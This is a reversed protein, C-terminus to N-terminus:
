KRPVYGAESPTKWILTANRGCVGDRRYSFFREPDGATCRDGGFHRTVGSTELAARVAEALAFQYRRRPNMRFASAAAPVRDLVRERVESGVEYHSGCIAPGLWALLRERGVDVFATLAGDIVGAALGRWGVHAAAVRHGAGDCLLLPLCDAHLIVCAINDQTTHSADAELEVHRNDAVAREAPVSRVGHVQRLWAFRVDEGVAAALRGRNQGVLASRDGCRLGLNLGRWSDRSVGGSRTISLARVNAPAPWDPVIRDTM